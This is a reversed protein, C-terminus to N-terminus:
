SSEEVRTIQVEPDMDVNQFDEMDAMNEEEDEGNQPSNMDGNFVIKYTEADRVKDGIDALQLNFSQRLNEMETKLVKTVRYQIEKLQNGFDEELSQLDKIVLKISGRSQRRSRDSLSRTPSEPVTREVVSKRPRGRGRGSDPTKRPRGRGRTPTSIYAKSTSPTTTPDKRPRGRGVKVVKSSETMYDTYSVDTDSDTIDDTYSIDTDSDTIDEVDSDSQYKKPRGRGKERTSRYVPSGAPYKRPRGRSKGSPTKPKTKKLEDPIKPRGRGRKSISVDLDEEVEEEEIEEEPNHVPPGAPYKRPRGRSKGSPIKPKTKKLEDPIKPRGRGRKSTSVDLDEEEVEEEPDSVEDFGRKM